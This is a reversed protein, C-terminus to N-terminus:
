QPQRAPRTSMWASGDEMHVPQKDGDMRRQEAAALHEPVPLNSARATIAAMGRAVTNMPTGVSYTRMSPSAVSVRSAARAMRRNMEPEAGSNMSVKRLQCSRVPWVM